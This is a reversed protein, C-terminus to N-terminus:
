LAMAAATREAALIRRARSCGLRDRDDEDSIRRGFIRYSLREGRHLAVVHNGSSGLDDPDFLGLAHDRWDMFLDHGSCSRKNWPSPHAIGADVISAFGAEPM